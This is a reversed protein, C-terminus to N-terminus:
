FLWVVFFTLLLMGGLDAISTTIPILVDDPDLGKRYVYLGGVVAILFHLFIFVITISLTIALVKALFIFDFPFGKFKAILTALVSVYIASLIAIPFVDKFLHRLNHSHLLPKRVKRAYLMTTFKSVIIIGFDGLMKNLAPILILLPILVVLRDEIYKLAIGGITVLISSIILIRISEKVIKLTLNEESVKKLDKIKRKM